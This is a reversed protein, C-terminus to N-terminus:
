SCARQAEDVSSSVSKFAIAEVEILWEPKVLGPVTVLTSAPRAGDLFPARIRGLEVADEARTLFTTVKVLDHSCMGAAKLIAVLNRWCQEAQASFSELSRGSQDVGVQGSIYLTEGPGHTVVGHSYAGAPAHVGDPIISTRSM